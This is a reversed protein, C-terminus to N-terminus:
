CLFGPLRVFGNSYPVIWAGKFVIMFVILFVRSVKGIFVYPFEPHCSGVYGLLFFLSVM